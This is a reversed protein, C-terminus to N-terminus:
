KFVIELDNKHRQAAAEAVRQQEDMLSIKKQLTAEQEAIRLRSQTAIVRARSSTSSKSAISRSKNHTSKVNSFTEHNVVLQKQRTVIDRFNTVVNTIIQPQNWLEQLLRNAETTRTNNPFECYRDFVITYKDLRKQSILM